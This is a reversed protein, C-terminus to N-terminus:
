IALRPLGAVARRLDKRSPQQMGQLFSDPADRPPIVIMQREAAAPLRSILDEYGRELFLSLLDVEDSCAGMGSSLVRGRLDLYQFLEVDSEVVSVLLALDAITVANFRLGEGPMLPRWILGSYDHIVVTLGYFTAGPRVSIPEGRYTLAAGGEFAQRRDELQQDAKGLGRIFSDATTPLVGREFHSKLELALLNQRSASVGVADIQGPNQDSIRVGLDGWLAHMGPCDALLIRCVKELVEAAENPKLWRRVYDILAIHLRSTAGELGAPLVIGDIEVFPRRTAELSGLLASYRQGVLAGPEISLANALQRAESPLDRTEGVMWEQGLAMGGVFEILGDLGLRPLIEPVVNSIAGAVKAATWGLRIRSGILHDHDMATLYDPTPRRVPRLTELVLCINRHDQAAQLFEALGGGPRRAPAGGGAAVIWVWRRLPIDSIDPRGRLRHCASEFFALNLTTRPSIERLIETAHNDYKVRWEHIRRSVSGAIEDRAETSRPSGMRGAQLDRISERFLEGAQEAEPSRLFEVPLDGTIGALRWDISM